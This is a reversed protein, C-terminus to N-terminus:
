PLRCTGTRALCIAINGLNLTGARFRGGSGRLRVRRLAMWIVASEAALSARRARRRLAAYTSFLRRTSMLDDDDATSLRRKTFKIAGRWREIERM